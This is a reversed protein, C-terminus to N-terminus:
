SQPIPIFRRTRAAYEAYGAFMQALRAEEYIAKANFFLCLLVFLALHVLSAAAIAVGLAWLLLGSYVPHRVYRYLGTTLLQADRRPTPLPTLSGGSRLQLTAIGALILGLWAVALATGRLPALVTLTGTAPVLLLAGMLLLQMVVWALDRRDTRM